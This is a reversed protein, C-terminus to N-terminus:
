PIASLAKACRLGVSQKNKSETIKDIFSNAGNVMDVLNDEQVQYALLRLEQLGLLHGQAKQELLLKMMLKRIKPHFVENLYAFFIMQRPKIHSPIKEIAKRSLLGQNVLVELDETKIPDNGLSETKEVISRVAERKESLLDFMSDIIALETRELELRHLQLEAGVLEYERNTELDGPAASPKKPIALFDYVVRRIESPQGWLARPYPNFADALQTDQYIRCPVAACYYAGVTDPHLDFDYDFAKVNFPDPTVAYMSQIFRETAAKIESKKYQDLDKLRYNFLRTKLGAKYDEFTRLKVGDVIEAEPSVLMQKGNISTIIAITAHSYIHPADGTLAIFSSSGTGSAKSLLVDGNQIPIGRLLVEQENPDKAFEKPAWFWNKEVLAGGAQPPNFKSYGVYLVEEQIMQLLFLIDRFESRSQFSAEERYQNRLAALEKALNYYDNEQNLPKASIYNFLAKFVDGKDSIGIVETFDLPNSVPRKIASSAESPLKKKAQLMQTLRDFPVNELGYLGAAKITLDQPAGFVTITSVIIAFFLTFNLRGLM